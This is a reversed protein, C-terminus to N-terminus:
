IVSYILQVMEIPPNLTPDDYGWGLCSILVDFAGNVIEVVNVIYIYGKDNSDDTTDPRRVSCLVKSSATVLADPVTVRRMTDGDNFAVSLSRLATSALIGQVVAFLGTIDNASHSHAKPTRADSLRPDTTLVFNGSFAGATLWPAKDANYVTTVAFDIIVPSPSAM